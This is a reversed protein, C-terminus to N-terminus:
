LANLIKFEHRILLARLSFAQVPEKVLSPGHIAKRYDMHLALGMQFVVSVGYLVRCKQEYKCM